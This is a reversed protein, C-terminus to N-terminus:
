VCNKYRRVQPMKQIAKSSVNKTDGQSMKQIVKSSVNKTDGQSM